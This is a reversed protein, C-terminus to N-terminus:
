IVRAYLLADLLRSGRRHFKRLRGEFKFGAKELVRISAKNEPLVTAYIRRLKLQRFGFVCVLKSASTMIGQRWCSRALWYGLEAKHGDIHMLSIGGIVEGARDIAFRVEVKRKKRGEALCSMIWKRADKMNYPYPITITFRSIHKDSISRRLSEEDGKRFPRLVFRRSRLIVAM